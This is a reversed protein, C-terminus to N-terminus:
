MFMKCKYSVATAFYGTAQKISINCDYIIGRSEDHTIGCNPADSVITSSPV